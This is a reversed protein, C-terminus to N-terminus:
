IEVKSLEILTFYFILTNKRNKNKQNPKKKKLLISCELKGICIFTIVFFAYEKERKTKMRSNQKM